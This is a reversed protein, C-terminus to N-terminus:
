IAVAGQISGLEPKKAGTTSTQTGSSNNSRGPLRNLERLGQGHMCLHVFLSKKGGCLTCWDPLVLAPVLCLVPEDSGLAARCETGM